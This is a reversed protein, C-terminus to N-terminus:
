SLLARVVTRRLAVRAGRFDVYITDETAFVVQSLGTVPLGDTTPCTHELASLLQSQADSSEVAYYLYARGGDRRSLDFSFRPTSVGNCTAQIGVTGDSGIDCTFKIFPRTAEDSEFVGESLSHGVRILELEENRFNTPFTDGSTYTLSESHDLRCDPYWPRRRLHLRRGELPPITRLLEGPLPSTDRIQGEENVDYTINYLGSRHVFKGVDECYYCSHAATVPTTSEVPGSCGATPKEMKQPDHTQYIDLKIFYRVVEILSV